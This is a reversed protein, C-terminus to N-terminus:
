AMTIHNSRERIDATPNNPNKLPTVPLASSRGKPKFLDSVFFVISYAVLAGQAFGALVDTPHHKHDSVRSLGTYFSMMILTFQTLPRLLRAGRWTFRSQLYFVLYLMTYMSFSAHGSFFSKRAEQVKSEPGNCQYDTIYGLSCNITSWDPRCVDLFHPRMRGVSVKAIDTFSQSVACGFIFVGVQKYLASIYPNGVFSKSGENLYYIMYSEGIIISLITILIGAASLVADSITDGHKAPYKISEDNCYFGRRYPQVASTEIILFPLGALFLCFLDVGVLFKKRSNDKSNNNNLSSSGGNRTEPAMTKEYILCRQM